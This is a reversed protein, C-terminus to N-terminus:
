IFCSPPILSCEARSLKKTSSLKRNRWTTWVAAGPISRWHLRQPLVSLAPLTKRAQGSIASMVAATKYELYGGSRKTEYNLKLHARLRKFGERLGHLWEDSQIGPQGAIHEKIMRNLALLSKYQEHMWAAMEQESM